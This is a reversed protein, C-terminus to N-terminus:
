IEIANKVVLLKPQIVQLKGDDFHYYGTGNHFGNRRHRSSPSSTQDPDSGYLDYKRRKEADSLVGFAKGVGVLM